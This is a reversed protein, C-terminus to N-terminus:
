SLGLLNKVRALIDDRSVRFHPILEEESGTYQDPDDIPWHTRTVNGPFTPCSENAGGCLTIVQSIKSLPLLHMKKHEDELALLDKEANLSIIKKSLQGESSIGIESLVKKALPHVFTAKTGASSVHFQESGYHTMIAEFMQSRCRNATCLGLIITKKDM